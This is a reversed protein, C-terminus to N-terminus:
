AAARGAPGTDGRPRSRPVGMTLTYLPGARAPEPLHLAQALESDKFAPTPFTQLGHQRAAIILWQAIRGADVYLNLLAREHRYRWQYRGYDAVLVLTWAATMPPVQGHVWSVLDKHLDRTSVRTLAHQDIGYHYVGVPLEDVRFSLLYVETCAGFSVFAALPDEAQWAARAVARARRVQTLGSRLTAGLVERSSGTPDFRHLTRRSMASDRLDPYALPARGPLGLEHRAPTFPAPPPDDRLWQTVLERRRSGDHDTRDQIQTQRSWEYLDLASGWGVGEWRLAGPSAATGGTLQNRVWGIV